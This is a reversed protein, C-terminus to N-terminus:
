YIKEWYFQYPYNLAEPNKVIKEFILFGGIIISLTLIFSVDRPRIAYVFNSVFLSLFITFYFTLRFLAPNVSCMPWIIITLYIMYVYIRSQKHENKMYKNFIVSLVALSLYFFYMLQGGSDSAEYVMRTFSNFFNLLTFKLVNGIIVLFVFIFVIKKTFKIKKLWYVPLFFIATVHFSYAILMCLLYKKLKDKESFHFALVTFGIAIGQRLATFAITTYIPFLIFIIFSIWPNKSYKYFVFGIPALTLIACIVFFGQHNLGLQYCYYELLLYAPEMTTDNFLNSLSEYTKVLNYLYTYQDTDRGVYEGRLGALLILLITIILIYVKKSRLNNSINKGSFIFFFSIFFLLIYYIM